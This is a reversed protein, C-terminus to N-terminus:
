TKDTNITSLSIIGSKETKEKTQNNVCGGILRYCIHKVSTKETKKTKKGDVFFILCDNEPVASRIKMFSKGYSVPFFPTQFTTGGGPSHQHNAYNVSVPAIV